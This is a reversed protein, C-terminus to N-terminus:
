KQKRQTGGREQKIYGYVVGVKACRACRARKTVKEIWIIKGSANNKNAQRKKERDTRSADDGEAHAHTTSRMTVM